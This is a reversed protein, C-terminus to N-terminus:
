TAVGRAQLLPAVWRLLARIIPIRRLQSYMPIMRQGWRSLRTREVVLVVAAEVRVESFGTQALANRLERPSLPRHHEYRLSRRWQVYRDAWRRPVVGVGWVGVHPEPLASYRNVTRLSLTAGTCLVRRAERTVRTADRCHELLGLSVARVFEANKFPLYEANACVLQAKCDALKERRAAVVMWRLAVDVGVVTIGRTAGAEVLDATGCGLDLWCGEATPPATDTERDLFEAARADADLVHQVYRNALAASTTPTIDWYARVADAFSLSEIIPALRRAKARDAVLGIWPDPEIRFDPIGLVVPFHLRCPLCSYADHTTQLEGHCRPCVFGPLLSHRM